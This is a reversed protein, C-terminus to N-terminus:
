RRGGNRDAELARIAAALSAPNKAWMGALAKALRLTREEERERAIAERREDASAEGWIVRAALGPEDADEDERFAGAQRKKAWALIMRARRGPDDPAHKHSWAVVGLARRLPEGIFAARATTEKVGLDDALLRAYRDDVRIERRATPPRRGHMSAGGPLSNEAM